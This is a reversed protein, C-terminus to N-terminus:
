FINFHKRHIIRLFHRRWLKWSYTACSALLRLQTKLPTKSKNEKKKGRTHLFSHWLCYNKQKLYLIPSSIMSFRFTSQPTFTDDRVDRSWTQSPWSWTPLLSTIVPFLSSSRAFAWLIWDPGRWLAWDLSWLHHTPNNKLLLPNLNLASSFHTTKRLNGNIEDRHMRLYSMSKQYINLWILTLICELYQLRIFCSKLQHKM